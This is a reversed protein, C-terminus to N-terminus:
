PLRPCRRRDSASSRTRASRRTASSTSTSTSPTPEHITWWRRAPHPRPLRVRRGQGAVRCHAQQLGCRCRQWSTPSTPQVQGEGAAHRSSARSWTPASTASRPRARLPHRRRGPHLRADSENVDPPLVKIGMRRCENLYIASKDKDDRVVPSCRPWTSRRSLQAKLYATWYSVCRRLRRTHAKNFGYDASRCRPHGVAGQDSGALLREGTMGASFGRVATDLEAKKKKGMARRLLDAQGALLRGGQQAIAM